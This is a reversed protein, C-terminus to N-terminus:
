GESIFNLDLNVMGIDTAPGLTIKIASKYMNGHGCGNLVPRLLPSSYNGVKQPCVTSVQLLTCLECKYGESPSTMDGRYRTPSYFHYSTYFSKTVTKAGAEGERGM